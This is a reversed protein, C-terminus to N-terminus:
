KIRTYLISADEEFQFKDNNILNCTVNKYNETGLQAVYLKKNEVKYKRNTSLPISELISDVTLDTYESITMGLQEELQPRTLNNEQMSKELSLTFVTVLANRYSTSDVTETFTGDTKFEASCDVNVGDATELGMDALSSSIDLSGKWKGVLIEALTKEAPKTTAPTSSPTPKKTESGASSSGGSSAEESSSAESTNDVQESSDATSSDKSSSEDKDGGCAVLSTLIFLCVIISLLKRM